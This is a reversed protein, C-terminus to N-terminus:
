QNAQRLLDDLQNKGTFFSGVFSHLMGEFRAFQTQLEIEDVPSVSKARFHAYHMFWDRTTKFDKVLRDSLNAHSSENRMLFRFLLDYNSARSRRKRHDEVLSNIMFALEYDITITASETGTDTEEIASLPAWQKEIRDMKQEYQVRPPKEQPDLVDILRDSIDRVAHAIFQLRGPFGRNDLLLIAGAYASVLSTANIHFWNLLERRVPEWRRSTDILIDERWAM